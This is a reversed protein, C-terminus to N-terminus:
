LFRLENRGDQLIEIRYQLSLVLEGLHYRILYCLFTLLLAICVIFQQAVLSRILSRNLEEFSFGAGPKLIRGAEPISWRLGAEVVQIRLCLNYPTEKICLDIVRLRTQDSPTCADQKNLILGLM